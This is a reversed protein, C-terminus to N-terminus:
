NRPAAATQPPVMSEAAEEDGEGYSKDSRGFCSSFWTDGKGFKEGDAISEPLPKNMTEPLFLCLFGSVVAFLGFTIAPIKADFSELLTILPTLAGSLRAFMSGLGLATNRLVTPFLECSYNYAIAFSAAIFLKGIVVIVTTIIRGAPLFAAVICAGGGILMAISIFSRRGWVDLFYFVVVYSPIDVLGFIAIILYPNGEMKGSSLTLGYYVLSNAFWCLCMIVSMTRLHSTKFLDLTGAAVKTESIEKEAAEQKAKSLYEATDLVVDSKNFKLAKQVIKVAERTQGQAWLWRPSEDMIWIHPILICSHLGYVIQLVTKDDVLSGWVAVCIMGASFCCHFVVSCKTRKSPGVIEMTLVFAPIFAGASGFMGYFFTFVMYPWYDPVFAVIVGLLLQLLASWCFVTKRGVKDALRGLIIAGAFVGLMYFTQVLAGKWTDECVLNWQMGRSSERYTTDFVWKSCGSTTNNETYILCKHLKGTETIPIAEIVGTSNWHAVSGEIDVGNVWCMQM